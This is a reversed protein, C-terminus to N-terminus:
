YSKLFDLLKQRTPSDLWERFPPAKAHGEDILARVTTENVPEGDSLKERKFLGRLDPGREGRLEPAHCSM